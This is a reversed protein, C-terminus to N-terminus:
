SDAKLKQIKVGLTKGVARPLAKMLAGFARFAQLGAAVAPAEHVLASLQSSLASLQRETYAIRIAL